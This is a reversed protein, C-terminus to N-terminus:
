PNEPDLVQIPYLPIHQNQEMLDSIEALFGSFSVKGFAPPQFQRPVAERRYRANPSFHSSSSSQHTSCSFTAEGHPRSGPLMATEPGWIHPNWCVLCFSFQRTLGVADSGGCGTPWLLGPLNLPPAVNYFPM